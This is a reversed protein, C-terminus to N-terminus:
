ELQNNPDPDIQFKTAATMRVDIIGPVADDARDYMAEADSPTTVKVVGIGPMADIDYGVASLADAVAEVADETTTLEDDHTAGQRTV